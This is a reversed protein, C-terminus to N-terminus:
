HKGNKEMSVVLETERQQKIANLTCIVALLKQFNQSVNAAIKNHKPQIYVIALEVYERDPNTCLQLRNPLKM